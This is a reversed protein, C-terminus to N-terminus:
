GPAATAREAALRLRRDENRMGRAMAERLGAPRIDFARLAANVRVVTANRIRAILKRGVGGYVPMTPGFM